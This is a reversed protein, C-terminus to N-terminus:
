QVEISEMASIRTLRDLLVEWDIRTNFGVIDIRPLGGGKVIYYGQNKAEVGMLQCVGNNLYCGFGFKEYYFKDFFRLIFKSLYNMAGGGGIMTINEVAKQSIKHTSRDHKPTGLWAYFSTPQWNELQLDKVFGSVRGEMDGMQFKQTIAFLDLNNIDMDMSLVPYDSFLGSSRLSNISLLGDFVHIKITGLLELSKDQYKVGPITGTINGTLPTWGLIDTFEALSVHNVGGEFFVNPESETKELHFRSIDLEGGLVSLSIPQELTISQEQLLVSLRGEDFPISKIKMLDWSIHSPQDNMLQSRWSIDGNGGNLEFRKKSDTISFDRLRGKVLDINSQDLTVEAEFKGDLGFGDYATQDFIPAIYHSYFQKSDEIKLNVHTSEPVLASTMVTNKARVAFVQQENVNFEDIIWSLPSQFHGESSFDIRRQNLDVYVPSFYVEGGSVFGNNTWKWGENNDLKTCISIDIAAKETALSDDQSQYTLETIKIKADVSDLRFSTGKLFLSSSLKGKTLEGHSQYKKPLLTYIKKLDIGQSHITITWKENHEVASVKVKGDAFNMLNLQFINKQNAILFDFNLSLISEGNIKIQGTGNKCQVGDSHWKFSHCHISSVSFQSFPQAFVIQDIQLSLHQNQLEFGSFVVNAGQM